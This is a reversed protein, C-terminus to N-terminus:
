LEEYLYKITDLPLILSLAHKIKSTQVVYTIKPNDISQFVIIWENKIMDKDLSQTVMEM